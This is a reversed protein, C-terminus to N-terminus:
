KLTNYQKLSLNNKIWVFRKKLYYVVLIMVWYGPYRLKVIGVSKFDFEIEFFFQVWFGAKYGDLFGM